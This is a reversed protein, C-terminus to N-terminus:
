KSDIIELKDLNLGYVDNRAGILLFNFREVNQASTSIIKSIKKRVTARPKIIVMRSNVQFRKGLEVMKKAAEDANHGAAFGM